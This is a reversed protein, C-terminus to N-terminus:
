ASPSVGYQIAEAQLVGFVADFWVVWRIQGTGALYYPDVLINLATVERFGMFNFNGFILSKASAAPATAYSSLNLPYGWLVQNRPSSSGGGDPSFTFVSSSSLGMLTAWATPHMLWQAGDQYEPMLKGVLFPVDAAAVSTSSITNTTGNALAETILLSNLTAAWGRALWDRVFGQINADEDRLLEWSFSLFKTYKVLTFAKTGLAPADRLITGAESLSSFIVDPENDLPVNVTLGKGPIRRVGLKPVLSMEDRKAIIEQLMGTPVAYGGDAVTGINMDTDNYAKVSNPAGLAGNDGTRLYHYFAKTHDDGLGYTLVAPAGKIAPELVNTPTQAAAFAAVAKTAAAEAIAAVDIEQIAELEPMTDNEKSIPESTSTAETDAGDASDVADASAEPLLASYTADVAALAKLVNVGLTRPEAPTPTLSFEVIPWSKIIGNERRVLHGVSGSSWGLVGAELLQSVQEMYAAHRDLEAEIWLGDEDAEVKTSKGLFQASLKVNYGHDYLIPKSPVLDLHYNTKATFTEGELDSGGFVVGYGGVTLTDPTSALVKVATSKVHKEPPMDEAAPEEDEYGAWKVLDGIVALAQRVKELQAGALRRGAKTTDM